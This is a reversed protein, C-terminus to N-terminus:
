ILVAKVKKGTIMAQVSPCTGPMDASRDVRDQDLCVDPGINLCSPGQKQPATMEVDISEREPVPGLYIHM